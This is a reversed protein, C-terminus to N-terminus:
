IAQAKALVNQRRAFSVATHFYRCYGIIDNPAAATTTWM